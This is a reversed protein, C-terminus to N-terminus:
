PPPPRQLPTFLSLAQPPPLRSPTEMPAGSNVSCAIDYGNADENEDMGVNWYDGSTANTYRLYATGLTSSLSILM